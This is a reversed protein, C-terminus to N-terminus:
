KFLKRLSRPTKVETIFIAAEWNSRFMMRAARLKGGAQSGCDILTSWSFYMTRLHCTLCSWWCNNFWWQWVVPRWLATEMPKRIMTPMQHQSTWETKIGSPGGSANSLSDGANGSYGSLRITYWNGETDLSFTAYEAYFWNQASYTQVQAHSTM